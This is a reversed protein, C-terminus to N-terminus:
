KGEGRLITRVTYILIKIDIFLSMNSLYILDYRTREVMQAVSSAYGYKVMGWSTIGPRVQCLLAYYPAKRVIQEIFYAREPRPGVISMEGKIVNWFQPLEDIRYKRLITGFPTIRSDTDATLSPGDKEANDWMTRFKIIRFPKQRRGIREQRYFIPGESSRAVGIAAWLLVPSFVTLMVISILVDCVRKINSASDSLVPSSLDIFPEAFIDKLRISSTLFSLTDPAIKIPLNLSIFRYLINLVKSDNRNQPAIVLQDICMEKCFGAFDTGEPISLEDEVNVEDPLSVFGVIEYGERISDEMLTKATHRAEASNGIVLTRFKWQKKKFHLRARFTIFFRGAYTLIFMIGWLIIILEYNVRRMGTLDNILLVLYIWVTNVCASIFTTIFEELRSKGYPHNYYGSLWYVGLMVFPVLIEEGIVKPSLIFSIFDEHNLGGDNLLYYRCVNFIFFALAATLWDSVVYKMRQLYEKDPRRNM